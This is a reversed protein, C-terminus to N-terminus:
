RIRFTPVLSVWHMLLTRSRGILGSYVTCSILCTLGFFMLGSGISFKYPASGSSNSLSRGCNNFGCCCVTSLFQVHFSTSYTVIKLGLSVTWCCFYGVAEYVVQVRQEDVLSEQWYRPFRM